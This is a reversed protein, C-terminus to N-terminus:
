DDEQEGMMYAGSITFMLGVIKVLILILMNPSDAALLLVIGVLLLLTALTGNDKKSMKGRKREIQFLIKTFLFLRTWNKRNVMLLLKKSSM